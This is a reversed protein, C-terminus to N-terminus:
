PMTVQETDEQFPNFKSLDMEINEQLKKRIEAEKKKDKQEGLALIEEISRDHNDLKLRFIDGRGINVLSQLNLNKFPDERKKRM